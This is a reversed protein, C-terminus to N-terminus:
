PSFTEVKQLVTGDLLFKTYVLRLVKSNKDVSVKKGDAFKGNMVKGCHIWDDTAFVGQGEPV